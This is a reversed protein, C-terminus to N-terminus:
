DFFTTKVLLVYETISMQKYMRLNLLIATSIPKIM